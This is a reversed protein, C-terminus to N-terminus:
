KRTAGGFLALSAILGVVAIAAPSSYTPQQLDLFQGCEGIFMPRENEHKKIYAIAEQYKGQTKLLEIQSQVNDWNTLAAERGAKCSTYDSVDANYHPRVMAFQYLLYGAACLTVILSLIAAVKTPNM